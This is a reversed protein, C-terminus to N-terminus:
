IWGLSCVFFVFFFSCVFVAKLDCESLRGLNSDNIYTEKAAKKKSEKGKRKIIYFFFKLDFKIM